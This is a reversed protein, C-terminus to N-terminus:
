SNSEWGGIRTRWDSEEREESGLWGEIGDRVGSGGCGGVRWWQMVVRFEWEGMNERVRAPFCRKVPEEVEWIRMQLRSGGFLLVTAEVLLAILDSWTNPLLSKLAWWSWLIRTQFISLSVSEFNLNSAVRGVSLSRIM